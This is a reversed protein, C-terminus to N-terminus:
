GSVASRGHVGPQRDNRLSLLNRRDTGPGSGPQSRGSVCLRCRRQRPSTALAQRPYGHWCLIHQSLSVVHRRQDLGPASFRGWVDGVQQDLSFVLGEQRASSGDRPDRYDKSTTSLILRYDGDGLSNTTEYGLHLGVFKYSDGEANEGVNMILGRFDLWDKKLTVAAGYDYSPYFGSRATVLLPNMFQTYEDHAYANTDLYDTSDIIGLTVELPYAAGLEFAHKYWATLLYNRGRGNIDKVDGELDAAWLGGVFPTADNLANGAAFGLKSFFEDRVTPRYSIEAQAPLAGRCRNVSQGKEGLVQCQLTSALFGGVAFQPSFEYGYGPSTLALLMQGGLM